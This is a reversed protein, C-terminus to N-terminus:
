PEYVLFQGGEFTVRLPMEGCAIVQRWISSSLQKFGRPSTFTHLKCYFFVNWHLIDPQKKISM